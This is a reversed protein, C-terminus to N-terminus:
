GTGGGSSGGGGGGGSGLSGLISGLGGAFTNFQNNFFSSLAAADAQSQKSETLATQGAAGTQAQTLGTSMPMGSFAQENGLTQEGFTYQALAAQPGTVGGSSTLKGGVGGSGM